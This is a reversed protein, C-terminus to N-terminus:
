PAGRVHRATRRRLAFWSGAGAVLFFFPMGWLALITIFITLTLSQQINKIHWDWQDYAHV